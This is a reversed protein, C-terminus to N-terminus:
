QSAWLGPHGQRARSIEIEVTSGPVGAPREPMGTLTKEQTVRTWANANRAGCAFPSTLLHREPLWAVILAVHDQGRPLTPTVRASCASLWGREQSRAARKKATAAAGAAAIAKVQKDPTAAALTTADHWKIGTDADDVLGLLRKAM